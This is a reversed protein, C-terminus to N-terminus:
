LGAMAMAREFAADLPKFLLFCILFNAVCHVIDYPIGAVWWAFAVSWGGGILYVISCLAGFCLGFAGALISYFLRSAHAKTACVILILLPWMYLYMIVWNHVGFWCAEIATFGVAILLAGKGFRRAYIIFLLTVLEVNPLFDLARKSVFLLALMMGYAAVTKVARSSDKPEM